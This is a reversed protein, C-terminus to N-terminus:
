LWALNTSPSLGFHSWRWAKITSLTGEEPTLENNSNPHNSGIYGKQNDLALMSKPLSPIM